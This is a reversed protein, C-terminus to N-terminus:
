AEIAKNRAEAKAAKLPNLMKGKKPANIGVQPARINKFVCVGEHMRLKVGEDHFVNCTNDKNLGECGLAAGLLCIM